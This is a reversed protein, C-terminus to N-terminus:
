LFTDFGIVEICERTVLNDETCKSPMFVHHYHPPLACIANSLFWSPYALEVLSNHLQVIYLFSLHVACLLIFCFKFTSLDLSSCLYNDIQVAYLSINLFYWVTKSYM